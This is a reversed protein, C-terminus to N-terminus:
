NQEYNVGDDEAKARRAEAEKRQQRNAKASELWMLGATKWDCQAMNERLYDMARDASYESREKYMSYAIHMPAAVRRFFPDRVGLAQPHHLFMDLEDDWGDPNLKSTESMLPFLKIESPNESYPDPPQIYPNAFPRLESIGTLVEEYAHYNTSIQTYTGVPVGIRCAVYELLYSFHVANAGYAGWIMDNSRNFVVMDLRGEVGIQFTAAVNCPIDRSKSGLDCENDWIQLVQRRDSPDAKLARAIALLQDIGFHKRWRFGYAGNFTEGDDSFTEMRKVYRSLPAVDNRGGLMWLSEYLHFFPNAKRSPWFLVRELPNAYVTTVPTPYQYVPGNRSDRKVGESLLLDVGIPLAQDVNKVNIVKV